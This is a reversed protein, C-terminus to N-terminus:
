VKQMRNQLNILEKLMEDCNNDLIKEKKYKNIDSKSIIKKIDDLKIDYKSLVDIWYEKTDINNNLIWIHEHWYINEFKKSFNGYTKYFKKMNNFNRRTFGIIIGYKTQLYRELKTLDRYNLNNIMKGINWYLGILKSNDITSNLVKEITNEIKIFENKM